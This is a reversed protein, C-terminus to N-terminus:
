KIKNKKVRANGYHMFEAFRKCFCARPSKASIDVFVIDTYEELRNLMLKLGLKGRLSWTKFTKLSGLNLNKFTKKKKITM